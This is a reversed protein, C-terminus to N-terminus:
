KFEHANKDTKLGISIFYNKIYERYNLPIDEKQIVGEIEQQYHKVIDEAELRSEGSSTLSRIHILYKQIKPSIMKDQVGTGSSKEIDSPPKKKGTSKERGASSAYGDSSDLEKPLADADENSHHAEPSQNIKEGKLQADLTKGSINSGQNDNEARQLNQVSQSEPMQQRDPETLAITDENIDNIIQSLLKELRRLELLTEIDGHISESIRNEPLQSLLGKLKQLEHASLDQMTPIDSVPIKEIKAATLQAGLRNVLETQKGHVGKLFRNLRTILQDRTMSGHDLKQKLNELERAYNDSQRSKKEKQGSMRTETYNKLLVGIKELKDREIPTSKTNSGLYDSSYLAINIFILLILVLHLYSFKLPLLKRKGLQRLTHTADQMLLDSLDSKKGSGQYEFATSLKDKLQLRTDMDILLDLFDKKKLFTIVLGAFLCFGSLPIYFEDYRGLNLYGTKAIILVVTCTALFFFASTFVAQQFTRAFVSRKLKSMENYFAIEIETNM